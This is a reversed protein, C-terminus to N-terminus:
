QPTGEDDPYELELYHELNVVSTDKLVVKAYLQFTGWGATELRFKTSRDAIKRVPSPFTPHLKYVVYDIEGLEEENGEVWVWWKWWDDGQYKFDQAIRIAM